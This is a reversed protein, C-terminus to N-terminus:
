EQTEELTEPFGLERFFPTPDEGHETMVRYVEGLTVQLNAGNSIDEELALNNDAISAPLDDLPDYWSDRPMEGRREREVYETQTGRLLREKVTEFDVNTQALIDAVVDGITEDIHDAYPSVSQYASEEATQLEGFYRVADGVSKYIMAKHILASVEAREWAITDGRKSMRDVIADSTVTYLLWAENQASKAQESTDALSKIVADTPSRLEPLQFFEGAFAALPPSTEQLTEALVNMSMDPSKDSPDM